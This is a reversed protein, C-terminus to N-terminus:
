GENSSAKLPWFSATSMTAEIGTGALFISISAITSAPTSRSIGPSNLELM